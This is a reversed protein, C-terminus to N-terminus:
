RAHPRIIESLIDPRAEDRVLHPFKEGDHYDIRYLKHDDGQKTELEIAEHSSKAEVVADHLRDATFERGNVALLKTAPPIGAKGAPSDLLVDLITGTEKNVRFGLSYNFNALHQKDEIAKWYDPRVDTYELRWGSERIGGLPAEATVVMVRDKLFSAWDYPATSNLAAVIDDFGYARVEPPGGPARFFTKCFDDLSKQGNTRERIRVDAELWILASEQYYDEVRRYDAYDDRAEDLIQVSIATDELSRWRRGNEHALRAAVTALRERYEEPTLLGSRPALVNNGLYQTLGEYVWLLEGTMPQDYNATRLGAPRRYKGNWSHTLEHPLLETNLKDRERDVLTREAVRNDSSEHHELGGHAVADSLALLFHYSRYHRAGFLAGSEQILKRYHAIDEDTIELSRESDGAIHLYHAPTEGPSLDVTRFHRGALVPSDVLTTLSSPEFRIENDAARDVPLATGYGWGAPLKLSARYQLDDSAPGEPYLLLQDWNLIALETTASATATRGNPDPSPVYDFAVEIASAGAPVDVHFAYMNVLDRKWGLTKGAATIRLGVVDVIPGAPRHHGPIWKPYLLTLAGPKVPITLRAHVLRRPADSADVDLLIVKEISQAHVAFGSLLCVVLSWGKFDIV